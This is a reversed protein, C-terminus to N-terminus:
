DKIIIENYFFIPHSIYNADTLRQKVLIKNNKADELKKGVLKNKLIYEFLSLKIGRAASEISGYYGIVESKIYDQGSASTKIYNKNLTYAVM